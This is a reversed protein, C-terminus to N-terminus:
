RVGAGVEPMRVLVTDGEEFVVEGTARAGPVVEYMRNLTRLLTSKGCGSPGLICVMEGAQIDLDINELVTVREGARQPPQDDDRQARRRNAYTKNLNEITIGGM